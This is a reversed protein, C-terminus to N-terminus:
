IGGGMAVPEGPSASEFEGVGAVPQQRLCLRWGNGPQGRM